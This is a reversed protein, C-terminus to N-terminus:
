HISRIAESWPGSHTTAGQTAAPGFRTSNDARDSASQQAWFWRGLVLLTPSEVKTGTPM